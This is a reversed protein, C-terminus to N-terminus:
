RGGEAAVGMEVLRGLKDGDVRIGVWDDMRSGGIKEYFQLAGENWRLCNWELRGGRAIEALRGLLMTAFGGRRYAPQVFLDELFVGPQALWTSYSYFYLAFGAVDEGSPSQHQM